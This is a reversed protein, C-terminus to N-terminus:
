GRKKKNEKKKAEAIKKRLEKKMKKLEKEAEADYPMGCDKEIVQDKKNAEKKKAKMEEARKKM